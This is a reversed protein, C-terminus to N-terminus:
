GGVLLFSHFFFFSHGECSFFFVCVCVFSDGSLPVLLIVSRKKKKKIYKATFNIKMLNIQSYCKNLQPMHPGQQPTHTKERTTARLRLHGTGLPTGTGGGPISGADGASSPLNKAVPGGPFDRIFSKQEDLSQNQFGLGCFWLRTSSPSPSHPCVQPLM